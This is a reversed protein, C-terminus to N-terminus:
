ETKLEVNPLNALVAQFASIEGAFRNAARKTMAAAAQGETRELMQQVRNKIAENLSNAAKFGEATSTSFTPKMLWPKM